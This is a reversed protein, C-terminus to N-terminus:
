CCYGWFFLPLAWGATAAFVEFPTASIGWVLFVLLVALFSTIVELKKWQDNVAELIWLPGILMAFIAVFIGLTSLSETVEDSTFTAHRAAIRDQRSRRNLPLPLWQFPLLVRREFLTRFPSKRVLQLSILDGKSLYETEKPHIPKNGNYLWTKINGVAMQTARQASKVQM